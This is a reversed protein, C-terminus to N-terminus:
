WLVPREAATRAPVLGGNSQMVLIPATVDIDRLQMRLAMLYRDILPGVYANVVTTSSREFEQIEPLVESSLSIHIDPLRKRLYAGAAREHAPNRYAHLFCIAVATVNEQNISEIIDDLENIVIDELITGSADLM